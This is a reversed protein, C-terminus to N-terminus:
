VLLSASPSHQCPIQAQKYRRHRCSQVLANACTGKNAVAQMQQTVTNMCMYALAEPLMTQTIVRAYTLINKVKKVKQYSTTWFLILTSDKLSQSIIYCLYVIKSANGLPTSMTVVVVTDTPKLVSISVSNTHPIVHTYHSHEQSGTEQNNRSKNEEKCRHNGRKTTKLLTWVGTCM